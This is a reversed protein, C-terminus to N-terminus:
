GGPIAVGPDIAHFIKNACAAKGLCEATLRGLGTRTVAGFKSQDDTLAAADTAGPALDRLVANRIITYGVGSAMLAKEGADKAMLTPKMAEWRSKPYITQSDGAGVSGHLIVQKVGTAAAWKAIHRMSAEYFAVDADGRALADVAATFKASKFAAEVDAENMVDGEVVAVNSEAVRDLKSTPRAFVTVQHGAATLAKVVEAGLRGSGGFVLVNEAAAAPVAAAMLLLLAASLRALTASLNQIM